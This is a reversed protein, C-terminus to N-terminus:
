SIYGVLVFIVNSSCVLMLYCEGTVQSRTFYHFCGPMTRDHVSVELSSTSADREYGRCLFLCCYCMQLFTCNLPSVFSCYTGSTILHLRSSSRPWAWHTIPPTLVPRDPLPPNISLYDTWVFEKTTLISQIFNNYGQRQRLGYISQIQQQKKEFDNLIKIETQINLCKICIHYFHKPVSNGVGAKITWLINFLNLQGDTIYSCLQIVYLCM